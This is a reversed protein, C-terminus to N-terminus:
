NETKFSPIFLNELAGECGSAHLTNQVMFEPKMTTKNSFYNFM